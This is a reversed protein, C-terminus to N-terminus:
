YNQILQFVEEVTKGEINIIRDYDLKSRLHIPYYDEDNSDTIDLDKFFDEVFDNLGEESSFWYKCTSLLKERFVKKNVRDLVISNDRATSTYFKTYFEAFVSKGRREYFRRKFINDVLMVPSGYVLVVFLKKEKDRYIDVLESGTDDYIVKEENFGDEFMRKPFNEFIREENTYYRDVDINPSQTDNYKPDDCGIFKYGIKEFLKSVSTKGVSSTGVLLIHKKDKM